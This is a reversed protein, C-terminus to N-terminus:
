RKTHTSGHHRNGATGLVWAKLKENSDVIDKFSQGPFFNGKVYKVGAEVRGKKQPDYPPCASIIFGYGEAYERYSRQVEPEYYCAKTIACKANDIIIKKPVGGFWEFARRHCGLWTEVDQHRIIEAYQHRSWCLTMVFVWTKTKEKTRPDILDPGKGFDVQVSEGPAFHLPITVDLHNIGSTKKVYRQVSNYSGTFGYQETLLRHMVRATIGQELWMEIREKHPVTKSVNVRNKDIHSFASAIEDPEPLAKKPDLWGRKEVIKRITQAKNRGALGAEAIDRNSVGLRMQHIIQRYEYMEFSRNAM